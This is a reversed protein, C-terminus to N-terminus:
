KLRPQYEKGFRERLDAELVFLRGDIRLCPFGRKTILNRLTPESIPLQKVAQALSLIEDTNILV